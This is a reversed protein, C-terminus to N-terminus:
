LHAKHVVGGEWTAGAELTQWAAVSGAEVCIMQQYGDKPEWDAIKGAGDAWPNWIVVDKLGVKSVTFVPKNDATADVISLEDPASRYIRDTQATIRLTENSETHETLGLTKDNYTLGNLGNIAIKNVDPVHLYTHFLVNFDFAASDGQGANQVVMKTELTSSTLTVSYILGFAGGWKARTEEDLSQANLGFDVCINAEGASEGETRGLLEWRTTRAFGHQPLKEAATGAQPPGFVPFVLPIGGRVAKSGDLASATSLWLQERGHATWSIVTAGYLLITASAGSPHSLTVRDSSQTLTAHSSTTEAAAATVDLTPPKKKDGVM